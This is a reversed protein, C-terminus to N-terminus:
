HVQGSNVAKGSEQQAPKKVLAEIVEEMRFFIKGPQLHKVFDALELKDMVPGKVEALHFTVGASRLDHAVSELMELATSDIHNIATCQLVVNRTSNQAAQTLQDRVIAANAFTLSEDVRFIRLGEWTEVEHRKINRFHQTDPVRGVEAMHPHAARWLFLIISTAIGALLGREVGLLLVMAATLAFVVADGKDIRLMQKFGVWDILPYVAVIIIAALTTKPIYAFLPAAFLLALTVVAATIISAIQTTAGSSFNVMTRSLGGAVPMAGFLGAMANAAGLAVFERNPLIAERARSALSQAIAIGEVYGIIAIMVAAPLLTMWDPSRLPAISITPLSAPIAGVRAIANETSVASAILASLVILLLPGVKILGNQALTPMSTTRLWSALPKAILLLAAIVSIGLGFTAPQMRGFGSVIDGYSQWGHIEKPGAYGALQPIQSFIILVAAGSTFGALVPHSILNVIWGSKLVALAAFIVACEVALLAANDMASSQLGSAGLAAAVMIAAVSVPGVSLTRSTGFLAYALPGVISAYLGAQPPLGALLAFAVGQPIILLATIVGAIADATFGSKCYARFDGVTPIFYNM